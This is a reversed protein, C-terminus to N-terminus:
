LRKWLLPIPKLYSGSNRNWERALYFFLVGRLTCHCGRIIQQDANNLDCSVQGQLFKLSDEGCLEILGRGLDNM